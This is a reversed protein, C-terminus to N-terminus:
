EQFHDYGRAELASELGDPGVISPRRGATIEGIDHIGVGAISGPVRSAKTRPVTFIIEYDEGGHLAFDLPDFGTESGAKGSRKREQGRESAPQPLPLRDQWVRAGCASSDCLRGLDRAFGDSIDIATSALGHRALYRAILCRPEPYLQARIAAREAGAKRRAPGSKRAGADRKLLTLGLAAMGLQGTVYLRDGARAGRRRLAQGREIEGAAVVDVTVPADATVATDGGILKVGFRTAVAGFGEYFSTIWSRPTRRPFALSLLAFRPKAGM